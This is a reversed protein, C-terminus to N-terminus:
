IMGFCYIGRRPVFIGVHWDLLAVNRTTDFNCEDNGFADEERSEADIPPVIKEGYNGQKSLEYYGLISVIAAPLQAQIAWVNAILGM